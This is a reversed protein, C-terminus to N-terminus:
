RSQEARAGDCIRNWWRQEVTGGHNKRQEVRLHEGTPGDRNLQEVMLHEVKGGDSTRSNWSRQEVTGGYNNWWLIKWQEVM